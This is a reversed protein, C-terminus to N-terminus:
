GALLLNEFVEPAIETVGASDIEIMGTMHLYYVSGDEMTLKVWEKNDSAVFRVSGDEPTLTKSESDTNNETYVTVNKLIKHVQYEEPLSDNDITYWDKPQERIEGDVLKYDYIYDVTELLNSHERATLNGKGLLKCSDSELLDDICGLYILEGKDYRLFFTLMYDNLGYDGIALEVYSDTEDLDVLYYHSSPNEVFYGAKDNLVGTYDQGNISLFATQEGTVAYEEQETEPVPEEVINYCVEEQIGDGDLDAQVTTGYSAPYLYVDQTIFESKTKPMESYPIIFDFSGAAYSALMYANSIFMMGSKGFYWYEETLVEDLSKEYGELLRQNYYSSECQKLVLAKIDAMASEKDEFFSDFNFKEGTEFSYNATTQISNGHPGGLYSYSSYVISIIKDNQYSVRYFSEASYAFFQEKQTEDTIGEYDERATQGYEKANKLFNEKVTEVDARIAETAQQNGSVTIVPMEYSYEFVVTGDQAVVKDKITEQTIEVQNQAANNEEEQNGEAEIDTDQSELEPNETIEESVDSHEMQNEPNIQRDSEKGCGTAAMSMALILAIIKTKKM